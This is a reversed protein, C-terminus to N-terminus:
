CMTTLAQMLMQQRELKLKPQMSLMSVKEELSNNNNNNNNTIAKKAEKKNTEACRVLKDIVQRQKKEAAQEKINNRDIKNEVKKM